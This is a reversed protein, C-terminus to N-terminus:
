RSAIKEKISMGRSAAFAILKAIAATMEDSHNASRQVVFATGRPYRVLMEELARISSFRYQALEINSGDSGDISWLIIRTDDEHIMYAMQQRCADTVCLTQLQRLDGARMLWGQGAGIAQRFADEVAAQIANPREVARSYALEAARSAWTSHWRQFAARLPALAARSGHRGLTNIAAIVVEPEASDLDTIARSEVGPTMQLAAVDGLSRWCGTERSTMARDLLAAGTVEDVRLFYALIAAQPACAMRGIKDGVSALIRPAIEKTAYRQVLAAHIETPSAEFNRALADDLDRLEADPLTGLTKLTSGRRPNRM